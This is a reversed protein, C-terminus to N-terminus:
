RRGVVVLANEGARMRDFFDRVEPYRDAPIRSRRLEFSRTSLVEGGRAICSSSYAGFPTELLVPPPLEDAVFGQPLAVTVSERFASAPLVIPLRRPKEDTLAIASRSVMAPRFVFLSDGSRQAFRPIEFRVDLAFRGSASDDVTSVTAAAASGVGRVIWNEIMRRYEASSRNRLRRESSAVQGISRETISGTAGGDAAM